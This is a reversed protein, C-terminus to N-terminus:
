VFNNRLIGKDVIPFPMNTSISNVLYSPNGSTQIVSNGDIAGSTYANIFKTALDRVAAVVAESETGAVLDFKETAPEIQGVLYPDTKVISTIVEYLM